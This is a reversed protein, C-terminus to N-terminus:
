MNTGKKRRGAFPIVGHEDGQTFPHFLSGKGCLFVCVKEINRAVQNAEKAM